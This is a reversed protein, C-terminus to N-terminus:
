VGKPTLWHLNKSTRHENKGAPRHEGRGSNGIGGYGAGTGREDIRHQRAPRGIELFGAAFLDVILRDARAAPDRLDLGARDIEARGVLRKAAVLEGRRAQRLERDHDAAHDRDILMGPTWGPWTLSLPATSAPM